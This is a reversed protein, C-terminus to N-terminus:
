IEQFHYEVGAGWRESIFQYTICTTYLSSSHIHLVYQVSPHYISLDYMIYSYLVFWTWIALSYICLVYHVSLHHISVDYMIYSACEWWLNHTSLYLPAHHHISVDYMIYLYLVFWTWIADSLQHISVRHLNYLSIFFPYTICITCTSSSYICWVHQISLDYKIYLYVIFPYM